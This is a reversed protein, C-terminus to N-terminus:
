PADQVLLEGLRRHFYLAESLRGQRGLAGTLHSYAAFPWPQEQVLPELLRVVEADDGRVEVLSALSLRYRPDQPDAALAARFRQEARDVAGDREDVLGALHAKLRDALEEDEHAYSLFVKLPALAKSM